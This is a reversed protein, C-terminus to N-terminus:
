VNSHFARRRHPFTLDIFDDESASATTLHHPHLAGHLPVEEDARRISSRHRHRHCCRHAVVVVVPSM